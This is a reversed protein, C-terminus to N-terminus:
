ANGAMPQGSRIQKRAFRPPEKRLAPPRLAEFRPERHFVAFSSSLGSSRASTARTPPSARAFLGRGLRPAFNRWFRAKALPWFFLGSGSMTEKRHLCHVLGSRPLTSRGAEHQYVTTSIPRPPASFFGTHKRGGLRLPASFFSSLNEPLLFIRASRPMHASVASFASFGIRM